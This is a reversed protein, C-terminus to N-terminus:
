ENTRQYVSLTHSYPRSNGKGQSTFVVAITNCMTHLLEQRQIHVVHSRGVSSTSWVLLAACSMISVSVGVGALDSFVFKM